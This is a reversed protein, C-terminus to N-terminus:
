VLHVRGTGPRTYGIDWSDVGAQAALDRIYSAGATDTMVIMGVGMNFARYMESREVGGAQELVTLIYPKFM